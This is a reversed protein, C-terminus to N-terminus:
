CHFPQTSLNSCGLSHWDLNSSENEKECPFHTQVIVSDRSQRSLNRAMSVYESCLSELLM